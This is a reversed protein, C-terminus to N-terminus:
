STETQDSPLVEVIKQAVKKVGQTIIGTPNKYMPSRVFLSIIAYFAMFSFITYVANPVNTGTDDLNSGAIEALAVEPAIPVSYASLTEEWEERMITKTDSVARSINGIFQTCRRSEDGLLSVAAM